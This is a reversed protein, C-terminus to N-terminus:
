PGPNRGLVAGLLKQWRSDREAQFSAIRRTLQAHLQDLDEAKGPPVEPPPVPAPAPKPRPAAPPLAGATAPPAQTRAAATAELRTRLEELERTLERIQTLEEHVLGMQERFLAGFAQAMIAMMPQINPDALWGPPAQGLQDRLQILVAEAERGNVVALPTSSLPVIAHHPSDVVAGGLALPEADADPESQREAAGVVVGCALRIAYPGTRLEDGDGVRAFPARTDNIALGEGELDVLWAGLPTRLLGCLFRPVDPHGLQLNCASSRGILALVREVQWHTRRVPGEWLELDVSPLPVQVPTPGPPDESPRVTYPGISLPQDRALWGARATSPGFHIGTRSALDVCFIRGRVVQLYAHRRSVQPDDLVLTAGEERGIVAYPRAFAVPRAKGTRTDAVELRLAPPAECAQQFLAMSHQDDVVVV